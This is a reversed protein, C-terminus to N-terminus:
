TGDVHSSQNICVQGSRQNLSHGSSQWLVDDSHFCISFWTQQENNYHSSTKIEYKTMDDEYLEYWTADM